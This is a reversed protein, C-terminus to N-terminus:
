DLGFIFRSKDSLRWYFRDWKKSYKEIPVVSEKNHVIIREIFGNEYLARLAKNFNSRNAASSIEELMMQSDLYVAGEHEFTCEKEPLDGREFVNMSMLIANCVTARELKSIESILQIRNSQM